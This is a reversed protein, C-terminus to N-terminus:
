INCHPITAEPVQARKDEDNKGQDHATSPLQYDHRHVLKEISTRRRPLCTMISSM